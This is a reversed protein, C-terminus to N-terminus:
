SRPFSETEVCLSCSFDKAEASSRVEIAWDDLGYGSAISVSSGQEVLTWEAYCILGEYDRHKGTQGAVYKEEWLWCGSLIPFLARV